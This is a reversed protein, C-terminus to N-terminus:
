DDAAESAAAGISTALPATQRQSPAGEIAQIFPEVLHPDFQSGAGARLEAFAQEPTRGKRYPRDATMASYADAVAMIRGIPPIDLGRRRNPYGTGDWREHHNLVADMVLHLHPVDRILMAGYEVHQEMLAREHPTLAGPKLLITDPVAIKGVDHIPGAIRLADLVDPPLSLQRALLLAVETVIDSHHRTYRDKRDVASVLGDLVSLASWGADDIRLRTRGRHCANVGHSKAERLAAACADLLESRTGGDDPRAAVGISVAIPLDVGEVQVALSRAAAIVRRAVADADPGSANPLVLLFEDSGFRGVLDGARCSGELMRAVRQLVVDGAAFGNIDNFLTFNGVDILLVSLPRDAADALNALRELQEVSARHNLLGTVPDLDVGRRLKAQLRTHSVAIAAQAALERVTALAAERVDFPRRALLVFAGIAGSQVTMPVALGFRFEGAAGDRGLVPTFPHPQGSVLAAVLHEALELPVRSGVPSDDVFAPDSSARAVIELEGAAEDVLEVRCLDSNLLQLGALALDDLVHELRAGSAIAPAVSPVAPVPAPPAQECAAGALALSALSALAGLRDRRERSAGPPLLVALTGLSAGDIVLPLELSTGAADRDIAALSRTYGARQDARREGAGLPSVCQSDSALRVSASLAGLGRALTAIQRALAQRRVTLDGADVSGGTATDDGFM